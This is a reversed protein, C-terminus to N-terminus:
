PSPGSFTLFFPMAHLQGLCDDDLDDTSATEVFKATIDPLCGNIGLGHGQDKGIIHRANEMDVLALEAFHPPTVPDAEGSLLLVPKDTAVPTKFEDDIIGAPWVSCIDRLADVMIPGIYTSELDEQSIAEGTFFPADETCVVSNHMGMALQDSMATAAMVFQATLPAYNGEIAENILLPMLAVSGPSYSLLRLAGALEMAGFTYSDAVGTLPDALAVEQPEEALRRQLDDFATALGPFQSNCDSSEKCRDFIADLAKQAETAIAPGLGVQPPAVGDLIVSRTSDPYQRLFHQAVRTGYSSGYLNLPGYGLAVRLAELDQVAVSTTFFRPDHPLAEVCARTLEITEESSLQGEIVDDGFDCNMRASKGTGRQDLLLIDRNRRIEEFARAWNVYFETSAGGPGGAIPVFPDPEPELSLAPVVAVRLELMPSEPDAPNEPREFVGCRAKIGPSGPGAYVRCDNLALSSGDIPQAIAGVAFLLSYLIISLRIM